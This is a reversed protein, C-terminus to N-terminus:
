NLVVTIEVRRSEAKTGAPRDPGHSAIHMRQANVGRSALYKRVAFAREFALHHNSAHGSKKIPDSDTHGSVRISHGAYSSNLVAAVADLSRKAADKLTSKGSQFLIDSEVVATIEGASTSGSVGPINDFETSSGMVNSPPPASALEENARRLEALERDKDRLQFNASELAADRDSLQARLEENEIVLDASQTNGSNSSCGALTAALCVAAFGAMMGSVNRMKRM